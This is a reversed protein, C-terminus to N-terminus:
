KFETKKVIKSKALYDRFKEGRSREFEEKVFDSTDRELEKKMM